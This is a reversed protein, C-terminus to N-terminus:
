TEEEEEKTKRNVFFRTARGSRTRGPRPSPVEARVRGGELLEEIAYWVTRRSYGTATEFM